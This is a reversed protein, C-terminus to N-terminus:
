SRHRNEHRREQRQWVSINKINRWGSDRHSVGGVVSEAVAKLDSVEMDELAMRIIAAKRLYESLSENLRNGRVAILKKLDDSLSIQTRVPYIATQMIIYYYYMM